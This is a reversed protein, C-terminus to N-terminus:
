ELHPQRAHEVVAVFQGEERHEVAVIRDDPSPPFASQVALSHEPLSDPIGREWLQEAVDGGIEVHSVLWMGGSWRGSLDLSPM